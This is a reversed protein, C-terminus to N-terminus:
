KSANLKELFAVAKPQNKLAALQICEKAKIENVTVGFRGNLYIDGLNYLATSNGNDAALTMYKVIESFNKSGNEILTFSYRLQADVVGNDAADKFLKLAANVDKKVHIGNLLYYGKWYKAYNNGCEAHGSFCEWAVNYKKVQHAKHGDEFPRLTHIVPITSINDLTLEECDEPLGFTSEVKTSKLKQNNTTSSLTLGPIDSSEGKPRVKPSTGNPVYRDHLNKLDSLMEMVKPRQSPEHDWAKKIIKSLVQPIPNPNILIEMVERRQNMVHDQIEAVTNMDKYPIRQHCLEWLLMGFSFMECHHDYRRNLNYRKKSDNSMKEPALWRILDLISKVELSKEHETHSLEFNSIKPEYGDTILINECRIDHHLINCRHIFLLGNCIDRAIKLKTPWDINNYMYLKKLNGNRAWDFVMVHSNDIISLGHFAIIYPCYGLKLLIALEHQDIQSRVTDNNEIVLIKKCAVEVGKYVRKIINKGTEKNFPYPELDTPNIDPAKYANNLKLKATDETGMSGSEPKVIQKTLEGINTSLQTLEKMVLRIDSSLDGMNKLLIDIDEMVKKTEIERRENNYIALSFHLDNCVDEFEKINKDFAEKVTM